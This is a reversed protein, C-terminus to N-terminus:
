EKFGAFKKIKMDKANESIKELVSLYTILEDYSIGKILTKMEGRLYAEIQPVMKKGKATLYFIKVRNDSTDSKVDVIGLEKLRAVLVTVFPAEVGLEEALVSPRMGNENDELLGLLAWDITSLNYSSMLKEQTYGKFVRYVKAQLLGARYTKRNKVTNQIKKFLNVM